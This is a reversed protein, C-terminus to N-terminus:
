LAHLLRLARQQISARTRADEIGVLAREAAVEFRTHWRRSARTYEDIIREIDRPTPVDVRSVDPQVLLVGRVFHAALISNSRAVCVDGAFVEGQNFLEVGVELPGNVEALIGVSETATEQDIFNRPDLHPEISAALRAAYADITAAVNTLKRRSVKADAVSLRRESREGALARLEQELRLIASEPDAFGCATLYTLDFAYRAASGLEALSPASGPNQLEAFTRLVEGRKRGTIKRSNLVFLGAYDPIKLELVGEGLQSRGRLEVQYWTLLSNLAAHIFQADEDENPEFLYLKDIVVSSDDKSVLTFVYRRDIHEPFVIRTESKQEGQLSYWFPKRNRVQSRLAPIGGKLDDESTKFNVTEGRRLYTLAGNAHRRELEKKNQKVDFLRLDTRKVGFASELSEPGKIVLKLFEREIKALHDLGDAIVAFRKLDGRTVRMRAPIQDFAIERVLFYANARTVIGGRIAGLSDLRALKDTGALRTVEGELTESARILQGWRVRTRHGGPYDGRTVLRDLGASLSVTV